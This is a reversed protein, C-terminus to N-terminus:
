GPRLLAVDGEMVLLGKTLSLPTTNMIHYHLCEKYFTEMQDEIDGM